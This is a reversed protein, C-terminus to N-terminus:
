QEMEERTPLEPTAKSKYHKSEGANLDEVGNRVKWLHWDEFKCLNKQFVEEARGTPGYRNKAVLCNVRMPRLSWDWAGCVRDLIQNDSLGGEPATELAKRSPKYVFTVVDADQEIAGSDKLDSLQPDRKAESTEINRNMQCLVIWPVKLQKKLAMIKRSIQNLEKVRDTKRGDDEGEVLQLYDLVFLKIGYQKVMRRAKAAIQGMTQAPSADIYIKSKALESAAKALRTQFDEQKEAFGQMFEATDVGARGFLMRSVLSDGDMEISFVCVPIGKRSVMEPYEEGSEQNRLIVGTKEQWVYDNALYEVINMAKSTKGEGPRGAIVYYFTPRIGRVLKDLYNGTEGTPLGRLQTKGRVYRNEELDVMVRQIVTKIHEESADTEEETLKSMEAEVQTLFTPVDGDCSYLNAQAKACIAGLRRLRYQDMVIRLYEPLMAASEANGQLESLYVEAGVDSLVGRKKLREALTILDIGENAEYMERLVAFVTQHRLDYFVDPKGKFRAVCMGVSDAPAQLCCSIVGMEAASSYPPLRDLDGANKQRRPKM